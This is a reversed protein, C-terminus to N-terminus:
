LYEGSYYACAFLWQDNEMAYAGYSEVLGTGDFFLSQSISFKQLFEKLEMTVYCVGDSNSVATYVTEIFETYNETGKNVTLNKNGYMQIMNFATDYYPCPTSIYAVLPELYTNTADDYRHWYKTETNYKYKSGDLIGKGNTRRNQYYNGTGGDCNILKYGDAKSVNPTAYSAEKAVMDTSVIGEYIYDEIYTISFDIYQPYEGTLSTAKIAFNFVVQGTVGDASFNEDSLFVTWKFNTTYTSSVGGDDVTKDFYKVAQNSTYADLKPNLTNEFINVRSEIVYVGSEKPIYEYHLVKRNKTLTARYIGLSNITIPNYLDKGTGMARSLIELEIEVNPNTDSAIYINPDYTYGSPISNLYVNFIGEGKVTAIGTDLDIPASLQQYQSYWVVEIEETPIFIDDAYKLKVTYTTLEDPEQPDKIEPQEDPNQPEKNEDSGTTDQNSDQNNNGTNIDTTKGICSSLSLILMICIILNFLKNKM